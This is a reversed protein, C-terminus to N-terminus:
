KSGIYICCLGLSLPKYYANAYGAENLIRVFDNREPFAQVSHSLYQYAKKDKAILRGMEPTVTNMYLKSLAKVIFLKPQSFELIAVKGKPKLVRYMEALGKELNEFNRVGFAVTIADFSNDAYNITESDGTQLTIVREAQAKSVKQRAQKLMEESIDIGVIKEPALIKYALLAMDGTGTAVDLLTKPQLAKLMSITKKRWGKDIGMSLFHNMFDYRKAITNFMAAVQKKKALSSEEYPVISDHAYKQTM